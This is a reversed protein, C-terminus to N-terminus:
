GTASLGPNPPSSGYTSSGGLATVIVPAPNVTWSGGSTTSGVMYNPNTLTGTVNATYSGANSTNTIGNGLGTLVSASEGNQLGAASLANAPLSGYTSSGTLATVNVSAPTVALQGPVYSITYNSLGTGAALSPTIAYPGGAVGATAISGAASTLTAATVSDGNLLGSTTFASTGLSAVSGYTKSQNSATVTLAAPSVTWSGNTTGAVSYNPNTLTGAVDLTYSNASSTSSIGFSNSLGTLAGVTQGNQLGTATLGPNAPSSGYTSSGGLATVTVPAATVTWSGSTNSVDTYNPNTLTGTVNATYSGANSIGTIGNSLGTLASVTQGNQLGTASLGANAPLSGYASSGTFATVNVPAAGVTWTGNTTGAVSYNPNTLTGAVDLTYSGANSSSSIGFSNSLGNLAGVTQGNQLGTATLGPNAPSGGYTSSGGGATVTVPAAGVTLLGSSVYTLTYGPASMTGPAINMAYPGGAVSAGAAAGASTVAPAGSYVVTGSTYAGAVGGQVTFYSAISSTWDTGYTKVPPSTSTVTATTSASAATAFVYRNGAAVSAPPLSAYTASWVAPNASDLGGFTDGGPANSYVLWRGATANVASSGATNTFNGTTSLAVSAGAVDSAVTLDGAATVVTVAGAATIGPTGQVTGITLAQNDNFSVSGINAAAVTGVKNAQTLAFSGTGSLLLNGSTVTGGSQTVAGTDSIVVDGGASSKITAGLNDGGGQGNLTLTGSGNNTITTSGSSTAIGYCGFCGLATTGNSTGNITLAGSSITVANNGGAFVGIGHTGSPTFGGMVGDSTGSIAVTGSTTVSVGSIMAVGVGSSSAGSLSLTGAGLNTLTTAATAFNLGTGNIATGQITLNGSSSTVSNAGAFSVGTNETGTGNNIAVNGTLTMDGSTTLSAAYFFSFGNNTALSNTATVSFSGGNNIFSNSGQLEVGNGYPFTPTSAAYTGNISVTGSSIITTNNLTIGNTAVNTTTATATLNGAGTDITAGTVNISRGATLTLAGGNSTINANVDIDEASTLKLSHGSNWTVANAVTIDGNQGGGGTTNVTVNATGLAGVLTAVSLVSSNGTPTFGPGASINTNGGTSITLDFPDLLLTGTKGSASTVDVLGDYGLVGHSSVEVAGGSGTGAGTATITGRFDTAVDSWVVANGGAGATGNANIVAGQDVTTTEANAVTGQILKVSPDISGRLDGGVLINGGSTGSADLRASSTLRVSNGTVVVTGGAHRKGGTAALKGSVVVNGGAGGDLVISGSRGSVSRASLAGSVNVADHVAAQATAAKIEISGGAAKIRGSVDILARGDAAVAGTPVAVQLFGDGTPDLTAREGSGLGVSGLPVSITGSNSVTGGILGVFGGPSSSITGANSVSASAGNGVFSLNGSNFDANAIDLTSAVFGGGVQVTGSSTIAIGNPNVLFVQGNGTIAGAITSSTSGTVRNLIASSANSQIFNVSGGQGVSFSNWDIIARSSNQSITMATASPAAMSAQGSVVSGGRPLVAQAQVAAPMLVLLGALTM